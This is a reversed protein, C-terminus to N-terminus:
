RDPRQPPPLPSGAGPPKGSPRGAMSETELTLGYYAYISKRWEAHNLGSWNGSDLAPAKELLSRDVNVTVPYTSIGTRNTGFGAAAADPQVLPWPVPVLKGGAESGPGTLSIVGFDIQGSLPSLTLEKLIGVRQGNSDRVEAGILCGTRM